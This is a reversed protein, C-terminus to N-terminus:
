KSATTKKAATKKAATKKATTSKAATKTAASKAAAKTAEKRPAPGKDRKKQSCNPPRTPTIAEVEESKPAAFANTEGDTVYPGLRGDKIM